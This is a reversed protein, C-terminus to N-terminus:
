TINKEPILLRLNPTRTIIKTLTNFQVRRSHGETNGCLQITFNERSTFFHLIAMAMIGVSKGHRRPQIILSLSHKFNGSEDLEYIEKLLEDQKPILKIPRYRGDSHLVHPETDKIWNLFGKIGPKNWRVKASKATTTFQGKTNRISHRNNTSKNKPPVAFAEGTKPDAEGGNLTVQPTVLRSITTHGFHVRYV